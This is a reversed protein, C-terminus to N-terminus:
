TILESVMESRYSEQDKIILNPLKVTDRRRKPVSKAVFSLPQAQPEFIAMKEVM